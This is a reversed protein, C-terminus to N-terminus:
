KCFWSNDANPGYILKVKGIRKVEAEGVLWLNICTFIFFL